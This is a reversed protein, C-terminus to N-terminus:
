KSVTSTCLSLIEPLKLKITVEFSSTLKMKYFFPVCIICIYAYALLDGWLQLWWQIGYLYVEAVNGLVLIASIFSMFISMGVALPNLERNGMLFEGTTSQKGGTFAAWVGIGLSLGLSLAFLIYDVTHFDRDVM